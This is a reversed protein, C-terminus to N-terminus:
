GDSGLRLSDLICRQSFNPLLGDDIFVVSIVSVVHMCYHMCQCVVCFFVSQKWCQEVADSAHFSSVALFHSLGKVYWHLFLGFSLRVKSLHEVQIACLQWLGQSIKAHEM